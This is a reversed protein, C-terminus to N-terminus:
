LTLGHQRNFLVIIFTISYHETNMWDTLFYVIVLLVLSLLSPLLFQALISNFPIVVTEKGHLQPKSQLHQLKSFCLLPMGVM